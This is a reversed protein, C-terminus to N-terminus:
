FEWGPLEPARALIAETMPRLRKDSEPTIVLRHGDCRLAPGYEWMLDPSIAQLNDSMWQPLDWTSDPAFSASIEGHTAKFATWFADIRGVTARHEAVAEPDSADFFLWRM